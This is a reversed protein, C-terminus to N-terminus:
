RKEELPLQVVFEENVPNYVYKYKGKYSNRIGLQAYIGRAWFGLGAGYTTLQAKSADSKKIYLKRTEDDYGILFTQGKKLRNAEVAIKSFCIVSRCISIFDDKQKFAKDYWKIAM